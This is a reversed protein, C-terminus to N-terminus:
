LEVMFIRWLCKLFICFIIEVWMFLISLIGVYILLLVEWSWSMYLLNLMLMCFKFDSFIFVLWYLLKSIGMIMDFSGWLILIWIVLFVVFLIYFIDLRKFIIWCLILVCLIFLFILVLMFKLLNLEFLWFVGVVFVKNDWFLVCGGDFLIWIFYM